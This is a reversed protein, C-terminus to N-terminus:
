ALTINFSGQLQVLMKAELYKMTTIFRGQFRNDELVGQAEAVVHCSLNIPLKFESWTNLDLLVEGAPLIVTHEYLFTTPSQPNVSLASDHSIMEFTSLGLRENLEQLSRSPGYTRMYAVLRGEEDREVAGESIGTQLENLVRHDLSNQEYKILGNAIRAVSRLGPGLPEGADLEVHPHDRIIATPALLNEIRTFSENLQDYEVELLPRHDPGMNTQYVVFRRGNSLVFYIARVEPHNAYTYAQEVVESDIEVDPAKAEIVWRASNKVQLIYDAKGRLLPDHGPKKRGLFARPYRLSQERIVANETGSRYGLRKVLPALIEERVDTENLNTFDLPEFM